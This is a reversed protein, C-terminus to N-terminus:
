ERGATVEGWAPRAARLASALPAAAAVAEEGVSRRIAPPAPRIRNSPSRTRPVHGADKKARRGEGATGNRVREVREHMGLANRTCGICFVKQMGKKSSRVFERMVQLHQLVPGRLVDCQARQPSIRRPRLQDRRM